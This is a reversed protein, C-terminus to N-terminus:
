RKPLDLVTLNQLYITNDTKRLPPNNGVWIAREIQYYGEVERLRKCQSDNPGLIMQDNELWWKGKGACGSIPKDDLIDMVVYRNKSMFAILDCNKRLMHLPIKKPKGYHIRFTNDEFSKDDIICSDLSFLAICLFLNQLMKLYKFTSEVIM